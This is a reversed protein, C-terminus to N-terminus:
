GDYFYEEAEEDHEGNWGCMCGEYYGSESLELCEITTEWDAHTEEVAKKKEKKRFPRM